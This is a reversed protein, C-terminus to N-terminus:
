KRREAPQREVPTTYRPGSKNAKRLLWAGIFAHSSIGSIAYTGILIGWLPFRWWKGEIGVQSELIHALVSFVLCIAISVLFTWGSLRQIRKLM